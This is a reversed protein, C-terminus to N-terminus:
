FQIKKRGTGRKHLKWQCKLHIELLEFKWSHLERVPRLSRMTLKVKEVDKLIGGKRLVEVLLVEHRKEKKQKKGLKCDRTERM